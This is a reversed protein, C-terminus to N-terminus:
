TDSDMSQVEVLMKHLREITANLEKIARHLHPKDPAASLLARARMLREEGEEFELQLRGILLEKDNMSELLKAQFAVTPV